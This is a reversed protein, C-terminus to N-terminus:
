ELSASARELNMKRLLEAARPTGRISDFIPDIALSSLDPEHDRFSQELWGLALDPDHLGLLAVSAMCFAPVSEKTRAALLEQWGQACNGDVCRLWAQSLPDKHPELYPRAQQPNGQAIEVRWSVNDAMEDDHWTERLRAALALADKWRRTYYYIEALLGDPASWSPDLLRAREVAKESEAFRGRSAEDEAKRFYALPSRPDLEIARAYEAAAEQWKWQNELGLGLADHAEALSGDLAVAKRALEIGRPGVDEWKLIGNAAAVLYNNAAAAYGLAFDPELTLVREFLRSAERM